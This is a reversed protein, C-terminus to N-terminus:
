RHSGTFTKSYAVAALARAILKIAFLLLMFLLSFFARAVKETRYSM